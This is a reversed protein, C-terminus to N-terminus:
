EHKGFHFVEVGIPHTRELTVESLTFGYQLAVAEIEMIMDANPGHVPQVPSSDNM